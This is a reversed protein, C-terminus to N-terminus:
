RSAGCYACRTSQEWYWYRVKLLIAGGTNNRAFSSWMANPPFERITSTTVFRHGGSSRCPTPHPTDPLLGNTQVIM